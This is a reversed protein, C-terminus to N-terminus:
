DWWWQLFGAPALATLALCLWCATGCFAPYIMNSRLQPVLALLALVTPIVLALVLAIVFFGNSIGQHTILDPPFGDTGIREPWGSLRVHMHVALSYFSVLALLGPLTLLALWRRSRGSGQGQIYSWAMAVAISVISLAALVIPQFISHNM